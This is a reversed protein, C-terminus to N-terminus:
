RKANKQTLCLVSKLEHVATCSRGRPPEEISLIIMFGRVIM